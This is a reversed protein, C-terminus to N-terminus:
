LLPKQTVKEIFPYFEQPISFNVGAGQLEYIKLKHVSLEIEEKDINWIYITMEKFNHPLPGTSLKITKKEANLDDDLWNLLARSYYIIEKNTNEVSLVLFSKFPAPVKKFFLEIELEMSNGSRLTSDNVRLFEFFEGNSGYYRPLSDLGAVEKRQITQKRKLLVHDWYKDVLLEHYFRDYYPKERREAIYYDCNMRMQPTIDMPNLPSGARYNMFAYNMERNVHGGITFTGPNKGTEELLKTYFEKPIVHYFYHTFSELNYSLAFYVASSGAFAIAVAKNFFSPIADFFFVVCLGFVVYLYLGTRDEPYNVKLLQKQLYIGIVLTTFIFSYFVKPEFIAMIRFPRKFFQVLSFLLALGFLVPLLVQIWLANSGFIFQMLSKFTVQWYDEGWGSDLVGKEKYFFSFKIWFVLILLNILQLLLNKMDIFLRHQYQFVLVLLWLLLVLVLLTLNAALALQICISFFMLAKLSHKSFYDQLFSFGLVLWAMSLGYGRCLEFFDLFNFTLIFFTGLLLRTAYSKLHPFFRYVGWCLGLFSLLNPLRLVFRHSGGLHYCINSLASNLVHNNTYVHAKYPLYDDSQVYFFFTSAEDHSFSIFFARLAILVFVFACVSWYLRNFNKELFGM